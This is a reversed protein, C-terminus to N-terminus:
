EAKAKAMDTTDAIWARVVAEDQGNLRLQLTARDMPHGMAECVTLLAEVDGVLGEPWGSEPPQWGPESGDGEGQGIEPEEEAITAGIVDGHDLPPGFRQIGHEALWRAYGERLKSHGHETLVITQRDGKGRIEIRGHADRLWLVIEPLAYCSVGIGFPVGARKIADSVLDKSLGKASEGIDKRTVGDVTLACWMLARNKERDTPMPIPDGYVATWRDPIVRNLRETTLRQDIYAVIVCGIPTKDQQRFVSQVKFRIAEPTFPRRLHPIAEALTQVPLRVMDLAKMREADAEPSSEPPIAVLDGSV